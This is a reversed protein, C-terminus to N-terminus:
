KSKTEDKVKDWERKFMKQCETVLKEHNIKQFSVDHAVFSFVNIIDDLISIIETDEQPNLKMKLLISKEVIERKSLASNFEPEIVKSIRKRAEFDAFMENLQQDDILDALEQTVNLRDERVIANSNLLYLIVSSLLLAFEKRVDQIWKIRETTIVTIYQSTKLNKRGHRQSIYTSIVGALIVGVFSIVMQLNINEMVLNPLSTANM